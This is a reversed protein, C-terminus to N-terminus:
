YYFYSHFCFLFQILASGTGANWVINQYLVISPLRKQTKWLLSLVKGEPPVNRPLLTRYLAYLCYYSPISKREFLESESGIAITANSISTQITLLLESLLLENSRVSLFENESGTCFEFDQDICSTFCEGTRAHIRAPTYSHKQSNFISLLHLNSSLYTYRYSHTCTHMCIKSYRTTHMHILSLTCVQALM